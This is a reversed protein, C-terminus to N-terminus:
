RTRVEALYQAQCIVLNMQAKAALWQYTEVLPNAKARRVCGNWDMWHASVEMLSVM